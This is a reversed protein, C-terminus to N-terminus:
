EATDVEGGGQRFVDDVLFYADGLSHKHQIRLYWVKITDPETFGRDFLGQVVLRVLGLILHQRDKVQCGPWTRNDPDSSRGPECLRKSLNLVRM